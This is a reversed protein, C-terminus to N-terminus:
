TPVGEAQREPATPVAALAAAIEDAAAPFAQALARIVEIGPNRRGSYILSLTSQGVGLLRAYEQQGMSGQYKRLVAVVDM